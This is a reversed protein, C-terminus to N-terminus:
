KEDREMAVKSGHGISAEGKFIIKEKIELITRSKEKDFLGINGFGIKIMGTKILSDIEIKGDVSNIKVKNSLLIPLKLAKKFKFYKFNIYITKGLGM